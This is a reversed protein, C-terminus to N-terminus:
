DGVPHFIDITLALALLMVPRCDYLTISVHKLEEGANKSVKNVM